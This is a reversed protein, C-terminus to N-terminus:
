PQEGVGALDSAQLQKAEEPTLGIAAAAGAFGANADILAKMAQGRIMWLNARAIPDNALATEEADTDEVGGRSMASVRSLLGAKNQERNEALETPLAPGTDVHLNVVCRYKALFSGAPAVGSMAESLAIAAEITARVMGELPAKTARLDKGFIARAQMYALGSSEATSDTALHGQKCERLITKRGHDCAKIVFEPDTPDKFIIGPQMVVEDGTTSSKGTIGRLDTTLMPGLARPAPHLYWKKGNVDQVDAPPGDTPPDALWVGSPKANTTYREPFGATEIVRLLVTEFYNLSRQQRRVADTILLDAKMQAIPLRKGLRLPFEQVAAGTQEGVIRVVTDEGDVFWLEAFKKLNAANVSGDGTAYFFVGVQQQTDPDTYVFGVDPAPADLLVAALADDPKLNTPLGITVTDDAKTEVLVDRSVRLRLAARTAWRSRRVAARAREWFQLRDWWASIRAVMDAIEKEQEKAVESEPDEAPALPAFTVEPEKDLLGNAVNDLAEGIVDVPRFQPEVTNLVKTRVAPNLGLQVPWGDGNQWHDSREAFALNAKFGDAGVTAGILRTHADVANKYTWTRFISPM